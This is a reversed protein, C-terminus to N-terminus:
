ELELVDMEIKTWGKEVDLHFLDLGTV